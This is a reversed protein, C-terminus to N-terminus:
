DILKFQNVEISTDLIVSINDYSKPKANNLILSKNKSMEECLSNWTNTHMVIIKPPLISLFLYDDLLNDLKANLSNDNKTGWESRLKNTQGYIQPQTMKVTFFKSIKKLLKHM